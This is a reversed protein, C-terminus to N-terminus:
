FKYEEGHQVPILSMHFMHRENWNLQIQLINIYWLKLGSCNQDECQQIRTNIMEQAAQLCLMQGQFQTVGDQDSPKINTRKQKRLNTLASANDWKDTAKCLHIRRALAHM